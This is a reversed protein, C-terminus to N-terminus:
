EQLPKRQNYTDRDLRYTKGQPASLLFGGTKPDDRLGGNRFMLLNSQCIYRYDMPDVVTNM